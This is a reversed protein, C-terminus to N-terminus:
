KTQRNGAKIHPFPDEPNCATGTGGDIIKFEVQRYELLPLGEEEIAEEEGIYRLEFRSCPLDYKESLYSMVEMARNYSLKINYDDDNVYDTKGTIMINLDHCRQMLAGVVHLHAYYSPDISYYNQAFHVTPFETIDECDKAQSNNNILTQLDQYIQPLEKIKEDYDPDDPDIVPIHAVGNSDVPLGTVSYKEQDFLDIIGDEDSDLARGKTDVPAGEPTDEEEDLRNIVGDDDDDALAENISEEVNIENLREYAYQLPNLHTLPETTQKGILKFTIGVTTTAYADKDKTVGNSRYNLSSLDQGPFQAFPESWRHGDLLDSTTYMMRTELDLDIFRNVRFTFGGGFGFSPNFTFGNLFSIAKLEYDNEADTEYVGDRMDELASLIDPKSTNTAPVTGYNYPQGNEDYHDYRTRYLFGGASIFVNFLVKSREKHFRAGGLSFMVDFTMDHSVTYSNHYFNVRNPLQPHNAGLGLTDTYSVLEPVAGVLNSTLVSPQWDTNWMRMHAYNMRLSMFYSTSKKAYVGFTYGPAFPKVGRFFNQNIDGNIMAAGGRVGLSWAHKPKAPYYYERDIFGDQQRKTRKTQNFPQASQLDPMLPTSYRARISDPSGRERIVTDQSSVSEISDVMEYWSSRQITDSDTSITDQQSVSDISLNNTSDEVVANTKESEAANLTDELDQSNTEIVTSDSSVPSDVAQAWLTPCVFVLALFLYLVRM